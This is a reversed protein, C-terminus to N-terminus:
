KNNVCLFQWLIVQMKLKGLVYAAVSVVVM